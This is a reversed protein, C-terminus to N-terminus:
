EWMINITGADFLGTGDATTIRIRDLSGSLVVKGAVRPARGDTEHGFMGSALWVNSGMSLFVIFGSRIYAASEDPGIRFGNTLQVTSAADQVAGLYGTTQISGSGLQFQVGTTGNTSVGNFMVTVRRATNPIGTLDIATGTASVATGYTLGIGSGLAASAVWTTTSANYTLVQGATAGTATIQSPDVSTILNKSVKTAM